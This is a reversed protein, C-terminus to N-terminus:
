RGFVEKFWSGVDEVIKVIEDVLKRLILYEYIILLLIFFFGFGNQEIQFSWQASSFLFIWALTPVGAVWFLFKIVTKFWDSM